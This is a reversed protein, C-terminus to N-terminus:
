KEIYMRYEARAMCSPPKAPLTKATCFSGNLGPVGEPHKTALQQLKSDQCM